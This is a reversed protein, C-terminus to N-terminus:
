PSGLSVRGVAPTVAFLVSKCKATPISVVKYGAGVDAVAVAKVAALNCSRGLVRAYRRGKSKRIMVTVNSPTKAVVPAPPTAKPPNAAWAFTGIGAASIAAGLLIGWRAHSYASQVSVFSARELVHSQVRDLITGWDEAAKAKEGKGAGGPDDYYAKLTEIRAEAAAAYADYLDEVTAYGALVARDGKVSKTAADPADGDALSKLTVFSKMVVTSASGIAVVVGAVGLVIGVIAWTLRDDVDNTLSGIDAIQLGAILTAGVAAFSVLLWKASERIRDAAQALASASTQAKPEAPSSV